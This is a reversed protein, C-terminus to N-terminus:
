SSHLGCGEGAAKTRHKGNDFGGKMLIGREQEQGIWTYAIEALMTRYISAVQWCIPRIRIAMTLPMPKMRVEIYSGYLSASATGTKQYGTANISDDRDEINDKGATFTAPTPASSGCTMNLGRQGLCCHTHSFSVISHKPRTYPSQVTYFYQQQSSPSFLMTWQASSNTM